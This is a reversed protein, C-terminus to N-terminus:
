RAWWISGFMAVIVVAFLGIGLALLIRVQVRTRRQEAETFELREGTRVLHQAARLSTRSIAAALILLVLSLASIVAWVPEGDLVQGVGGIVIAIALGIVSILMAIVTRRQLKPDPTRTWGRVIAYLAPPLAVIMLWTRLEQLGSM